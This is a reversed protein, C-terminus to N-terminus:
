AALLFVATLEPMGCKVGLGQMIRFYLSFNNVMKRAVSSVLKEIEHLSEHKLHPQQSYPFRVRAFTLASFNLQSSKQQKSQGPLKELM